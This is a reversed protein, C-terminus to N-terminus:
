KRSRRRTKRNKRSKRSNRRLSTEPPLLNLRTSPSPPSYIRKFNRLAAKTKGNLTPFVANSLLTNLPKFSIDFLESYHELKRSQINYKIENYERLELEYFYVIYDYAMTSRASRLKDANLNFGIEENCERLVTAITDIDTEDKRGKPIGIKSNTGKIRYKVSVSGVPTDFQVREGLAEQFKYARELFLKKINSQAGTIKQLKATSANIPSGKITFQSSKTAEDTTQEILYSSEYGVLVLPNERTAGEADTSYLIVGAGTIPAPTPAAAPAAAAPAAANPTAANPTAATSMEIYLNYKQPYIRFKKERAFTHFLSEVGV